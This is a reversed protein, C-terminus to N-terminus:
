TLPISCYKRMSRVSCVNIQQNKFPRLRVAHIHTSHTPAENLLAAPSFRQTMIEGEEQQGECDSRDQLFPFISGSVSLVVEDRRDSGHILEAEFWPSRTMNLMNLYIYM